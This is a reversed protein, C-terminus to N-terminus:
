FSSSARSQTGSPRDYQQRPREIEVTLTIPIDFCAQQASDCGARQAAAATPTVVAVALVAATRRVRM